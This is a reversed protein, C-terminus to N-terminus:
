RSARVAIAQVATWALAQKIQNEDRPRAVLVFVGCRRLLRHWLQQRKSIRGDISKLELAILGREPHAGFLDPFGPDTGWEQARGDHLHIVLWGADHMWRIVQSQFTREAQQDLLVARGSTM